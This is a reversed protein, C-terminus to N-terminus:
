IQLDKKKEEYEDKGIEGSAYRRKLIELPTEKNEARGDPRAMIVKVLVIIVIILIVWFLIMGFGGFWGMMDHNWYM